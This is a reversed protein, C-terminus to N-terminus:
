PSLFEYMWGDDGNKAFSNKDQGDAPGPRRFVVRDHMRGKGGCWFEFTEPVLQYGGRVSSFFFISFPLSFLSNLVM